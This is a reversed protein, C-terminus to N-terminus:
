TVEGMGTFYIYFPDLETESVVGTLGRAEALMESRQIREIFWLPLDTTYCMKSEPLLGIKNM